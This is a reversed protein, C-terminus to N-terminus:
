SSSMCVLLEPLYLRICVRGPRPRPLYSKPDADAHACQVTLDRVVHNPSAQPDWHLLQNEQGWQVARLPTPSPARPSPGQNDPNQEFPSLSFPSTPPRVPLATLSLVTYTSSFNRGSPLRFPSM